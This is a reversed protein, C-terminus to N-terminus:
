AAGTNFLLQGCLQAQDYNGLGDNLVAGISDAWTLLAMSSLRRCPRGPQFEKAALGLTVARM